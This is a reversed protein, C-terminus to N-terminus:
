GNRSVGDVVGWGVIDAGTGALVPQGPFTPIPVPSRLSVRGKRPDGDNASFGTVKCSVCAMGICIDLGNLSGLAQAAFEGPLVSLEISLDETVQFREPQDTLIDGAKPRDKPASQLLIAASSGVVAESVGQGFEQLEAIRVQDSSGGVTLLTLTQGIAVPRGRVPGYGARAPKGSPGSVSYSQEVAILPRESTVGAPLRPVLWNQLLYAALDGVGQPSEASQDPGSVDVTLSSEIPTGLNGFAERVEAVMVELLDPDRLDAPLGGTNVVVVHSRVGFVGAAAIARKLNDGLEDPRIVWAIRDSQYLASAINRFTLPCNILDLLSDGAYCGIHFTKTRDALNKRELYDGAVIRASAPMAKALVGMVASVSSSDPDGILAATYARVTRQM